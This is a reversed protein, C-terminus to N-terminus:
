RVARRAERTLMQAMLARLAGPRVPKHLVPYERADAAKRVADTYNATILIAPLNRGAEASLEDLAALGTLESGLHYDMLVMDPWSGHKRIEEQAEGVNTAILVDCSWGQLLTRMAALVAPDNDVCLIVRDALSGRPRDRTSPLKAFPTETSGPVNV